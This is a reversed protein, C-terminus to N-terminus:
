ILCIFRKKNKYTLYQLFQDVLGNLQELNFVDNGDDDKEKSKVWKLWDSFRGAGNEAFLMTSGNASQYRTVLLLAFWLLVCIAPEVPNGFVPKPNEICRQTNDQIGKSSPVVIDMHDRDWLIHKLNVSAVVDGRSVLHWLLILFLKRETVSSPTKYLKPVYFKLMKIWHVISLPSAGKEITATKGKRKGKARINCFGKYFKDMEDYIVQVNSRTIVGKAIAHEFGCKLGAIEGRLTSPVKLEGKSRTKTSKHFKKRGNLYLEVNALDVKNFNVTKNDEDIMDVEHKQFLFDYFRKQIQMYKLRSKESKSAAKTREVDNIEDYDEDDSSSSNSDNEDDDRIMKSHCDKRRKVESEREEQYYFV